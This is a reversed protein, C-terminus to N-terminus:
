DTQNAAVPKMLLQVTGCVQCKCSGPDLLDHPRVEACKECWADLVRTM